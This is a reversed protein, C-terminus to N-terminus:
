IIIKGTEGTFTKINDEYMRKAYDNSLRTSPKYGVPEIINNISGSIYRHPGTEKTVNSLYIFVKLFNIDDYDQHFSQTREVSRGKCSYWANTQCLIPKCGLYSQAIDLLFPDSALNKVEPISYIDNQDSIWFTSVNDIILQKDIIEKGKIIRQSGYPKFDKDLLLNKINRCKEMELKENVLYCGHLNLHNVIEEKQSWEDSFNSKIDKLNYLGFTDGIMNSIFRQYKHKNLYWLKYIHNVDIKKYEEGM